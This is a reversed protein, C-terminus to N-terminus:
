EKSAHKKIYNQMPAQCSNLGRIRPNGYCFSYMLKLGISFLSYVTLTRVSFKEVKITEFGASLGFVHSVLVLSALLHRLFTFSNNAYRQNLM